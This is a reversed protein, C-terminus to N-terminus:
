KGTISLLKDSIVTCVTGQALTLSRCSAPLSITPLYDTNGYIIVDTNADPVKTCGWNLPNEWAISIGGIWTTSFKLTFVNSLSQGNTGNILCRYKYGYWSTPANNLSLVSTTTGIYVSDDVVNVFANTSDVQWQYTNAVDNSGAYFSGQTGPCIASSSTTNIRNGNADYSYTVYINNPYVIRTLRNLSDYNYKQAIVQNSIFLLIGIKLVFLKYKKM